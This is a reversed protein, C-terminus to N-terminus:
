RDIIKLPNLYLKEELQKQTLTGDLVLGYSLAVFAQFSAFGTGKPRPIPAYDSAIVDITGDALAKKITKIDELSGLPPGVPKDEIENPYTFYHPCTECTFKLGSKKAKRIIDVADKTVVHQLHLRGGVKKFVELYKKVYKKEPESHLMVLVNKKLIKALLDLNELTNGDDSFGVVYKKLDDVDVLKKGERGITIASVPLVKVYHKQKLYKKIETVNDLCPKTNAMVIVADIEAEKALKSHFTIKDRFHAHLDVIPFNLM